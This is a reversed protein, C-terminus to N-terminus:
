EQRSHVLEVIQDTMQEATLNQGFNAVFKGDPDMLYQFISHDVIYDAGDEENPTSYYVRYMRCVHKIQPLTGTLGVIRPHFEEVYGQVTEPDDRKPDVSIFVPQITEKFDARADLANVTATMKELEEPCIDPCFTFGFYVLSWKGKLVEETVTSGDAAATLEFPGGLATTGVGRNSKKKRTKEVKERELNFYFVALAGIGLTGLM